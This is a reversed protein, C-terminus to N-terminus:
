AKKELVINTIWTSYKVEIIFSVSAIKNLEENIDVRKKMGVKQKRQSVPRVSPNVVPHHCDVRTDIGPMNSPAWVFLIFNIMIQDVLKGEEEEYLSTDIKTLQHTPHGKQVKKLDKTPTPRM